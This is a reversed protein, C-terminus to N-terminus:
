LLKAIKASASPLLYATNFLEKAEPAEWELPTELDLNRASVTGRKFYSYTAPSSSKQGGSAPSSPYPGSAVSVTVKATWGGTFTVTPKFWGQPHIRDILDGVPLWYDILFSLPLADWLTNIDPHLGIEDLLIQLAILNNDDPFDTHVYGSLRLDGEVYDHNGLYKNVSKAFIARKIVIRRDSLANSIGGNLDRVTNFISKLDSIMPLIGWTYGGYNALARPNLISAITEDLEFLAVLLNFKNNKQFRLETANFTAKALATSIANDALGVVSPWRESMPSTVIRWKDNTVHYDYRGPVQLKRHVCSNFTFPSSLWDVQHEVVGSTSGEPYIVGANSGTTRYYFRDYSKSRTRTRQTRGMTFLEPYALSHDAISPRSFDVDIRIEM